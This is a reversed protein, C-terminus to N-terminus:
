RKRRERVAENWRKNIERYQRLMQDEAWEAELESFAPLEVHVRENKPKVWVRGSKTKRWHPSAPKRWRGLDAVRPRLEQVLHTGEHAIICVLAERWTRPDIATPGGRLRSAVIYPVFPQPVRASILFRFGSAQAQKGSYFHGVHFGIDTTRVRVCLDDRDISMLDLAWATTRIVVALPLDTFNEIEATM